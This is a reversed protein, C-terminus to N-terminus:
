ACSPLTLALALGFLAAEFGVTRGFLMLLAHV